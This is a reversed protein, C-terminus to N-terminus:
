HTLSRRRQFLPSAVGGRDITFRIADDDCVAVCDFCRVCRGNDITRTKIDICSAKCVDQCKLCGTCSDPYLEIHMVSRASVLRLMTGVPCVENCFDRGAMMAYALVLLVSVAACTTGLVAGVELGKLAPHMGGLGSQGLANVFAPWPELLLPVCGIAAVLSVVYIGLMLFRRRDNGRYRFRSGRRRRLLGRLRIAMDQLTGVPCVSSCYVRGLMFTALLWFVGAGLTAGVGVPALSPSLQLSVAVRSHAPASLGALVWIACEALMVLSVAVRIHKLSKM